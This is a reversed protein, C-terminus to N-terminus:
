RWSKMIYVFVGWSYVKQCTHQIPHKPKWTLNIQAECLSQHWPLPSWQDQNCISWPTIQAYGMCTQQEHDTNYGCSFCNYLKNFQKFPTPTYNCHIRVSTKKGYRWYTNKCTRSSDEEFGWEGKTMGFSHYRHITNFGHCGPPLPM